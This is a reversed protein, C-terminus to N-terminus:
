LLGLNSIATALARTEDKAENWGEVFAAAGEKYSTEGIKRGNFYIVYRGNRKIRVVPQAKRM